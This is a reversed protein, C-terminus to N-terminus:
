REVVEAEVVDAVNMGRLTGETTAETLQRREQAGVDPVLELSKILALPSPSTGPMGVTFTVRRNDQRADVSVLPANTKFGFQEFYLERAAKSGDVTVRGREDAHEVPCADWRIFEGDDDTVAVRMTAGCLECPVLKVSAAEVLEGVLRPKAASAVVLATAHQRNDFLEFLDRASYGASLYMSDFRRKLSGDEAVFESSMLTDRLTSAKTDKPDTPLLAVIEDRGGLLEYLNKGAERSKAPYASERVLPHSSNLPNPPAPADPPRPITLSTDIKRRRKRTTTATHRRATRAPHKKPPM